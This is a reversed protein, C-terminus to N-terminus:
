LEPQTKAKAAENSEPCGGGLDSIHYTLSRYFRPKLGSRM